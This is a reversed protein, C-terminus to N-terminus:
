MVRDRETEKMVKRCEEDVEKREKLRHKHTNMGDEREEEGLDKDIGESKQRECLRFSLFHFVVCLSLSFM